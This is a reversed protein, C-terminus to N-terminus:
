FIILQPTHSLQHTVEPVIQELLLLVVILRYYEQIMVPWSLFMPSMSPPGICCWIVLNESAFMPMLSLIKEANAFIVLNENM